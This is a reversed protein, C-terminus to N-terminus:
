DKGGAHATEARLWVVASRPKKVMFVIVYTIRFSHFKRAKTVLQDDHPRVARSLAARAVNLHRNGLGPKVQILM